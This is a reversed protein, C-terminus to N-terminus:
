IRNRSSDVHDKRRALLIAALLLVIGLLSDFLQTPIEPVPTSTPSPGGQYLVTFTDGPDPTGNRNTDQWQVLYASSTLAGTGRMSLYVGAALIGQSGAGWLMIVTHNGDQFTQMTFYDNSSTINTLTAVLKSGYLISVSGNANITSNLPTLGKDEYFTITPNTDNHGIVVANGYDSFTLQGTNSGSQVVRNADSSTFVVKSETRLLSLFPYAAADSSTSTMEFGLPLTSNFASTWTTVVLAPATTATATISTSTANASTVVATASASTTSTPGTQYVITFQDGPTPTNPTSGQWHILYAASTLTSLTSFKSDFYVGGAIVGAGGIGRVILVTHTGDQLDEMIFYDNTATLSSSPVNSVAQVESSFSITGNPEVTPTIPTLRATEYFKITPNTDDHGVVVANAYDSFTLQGVNSGSQTVRNSDTPTFVMKNAQHAGLYGYASSDNFDGTIEFGLKQTSNFLTLADSGFSRPPTPGNLAPHIGAHSSFGYAVRPICMSIVIFSLLALVFPKKVYMSNIKQQFHNRSLCAEVRKFTKPSISLHFPDNEMATAM